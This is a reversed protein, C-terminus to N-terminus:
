DDHSNRNRIIQELTIGSVVPEDTTRVWHSVAMVDRKLHGAIYEAAAEDLYGWTFYNLEGNPQQEQIFHVVTGKPVTAHTRYERRDKILPVKVVSLEGKIM